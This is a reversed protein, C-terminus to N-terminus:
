QTPKNFWYLHYSTVYMTTSLISPTFFM